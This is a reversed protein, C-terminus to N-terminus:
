IKAPLFTLDVKHFGVLLSCSKQIPGEQYPFGWQAQVPRIGFAKTIEMIAEEITVEKRGDLTNLWRPPALFACNLGRTQLRLLM